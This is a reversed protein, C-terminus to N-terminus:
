VDNWSKIDSVPRLSVPSQQPFPSLPQTSQDGAQSHAKMVTDPTVTGYAPTVSPGSVSKSRQVKNKSGKPKGLPKGTSYTCASGNSRCRECM